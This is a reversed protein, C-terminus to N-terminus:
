VGGPPRDDEIPIDFDDSPQNRCISVVYRRYEGVGIRVRRGVHVAFLQGERILAYVAARRIGLLAAVQDVTMFALTPNEGDPDYPAASM